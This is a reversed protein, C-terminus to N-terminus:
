GLAAIKRCQKRSRLLVCSASAGVQNWDYPFSDNMCNPIEKGGLLEELECM